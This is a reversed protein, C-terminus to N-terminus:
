SSPGRERWARSATVQTRDQQVAHVMRILDRDRANVCPKECAALDALSLCHGPCEVTGRLSALPPGDVPPLIHRIRKTLVSVSSGCGHEFVLLNADPVTIVAQLGLLRVAPDLVFADWTPWGRRCAGCTAFPRDRAEGSM